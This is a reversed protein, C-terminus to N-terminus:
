SICCRSLDNKLAGYGRAVLRHKRDVKLSAKAQQLCVVSTTLLYTLSLKDCIVIACTYVMSMISVIDCYRLFFTM